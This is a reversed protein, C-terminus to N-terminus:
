KIAKVGLLEPKLMTKRFGVHKLRKGASVVFSNGRRAQHPNGTYHFLRGGKKLIRYIESYFEEGYLQGALSIRPPDHIVSDFSEDEFDKIIIAADGPIVTIIESSLERSWPNDKRLELMYPSFECSIVQRAGLQMASIATYGLGSCTDLVRDGKRVAQKATLFANEFPDVDKSKHMKVGNIEATPAGKTPVLKFYGDERLELTTLQGETLIFTRSEKKLIKKLQDKNLANDDDFVISEDAIVFTDTSRNLDVSIEVSNQNHQMATLIEKAVDSYIYYKTNNM